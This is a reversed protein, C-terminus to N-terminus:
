VYKQQRKFELIADHALEDPSYRNYLEGAKVILQEYPLDDPIKSLISHIICMECENELLEEERYLVIQLIFCVGKGYNGM